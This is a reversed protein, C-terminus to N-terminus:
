ELFTNCQIACAFGVKAHLRNAHSPLDQFSFQKKASKLFCEKEIPCYINNQDKNSKSFKTLKSLCKQCLFPAKLHKTKM